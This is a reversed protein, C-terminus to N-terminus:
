HLMTLMGRFVKLPTTQFYEFYKDLYFAFAHGSISKSADDSIDFFIDEKSESADTNLFTRRKQFMKLFAEFLMGLTNM